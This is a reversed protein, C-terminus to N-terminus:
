ESHDEEEEEFEEYEYYGIEETWYNELSGDSMNHKEKRM